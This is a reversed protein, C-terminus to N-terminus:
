SQYICANIKKPIRENTTKIWSIPCKNAALNNTSGLNISTWRLGNTNIVMAKTPNVTFVQSTNQVYNSSNDKVSVNVTWDGDGDFYWIDVTCNYRNTTTNINESSCSLNYRSSIEGSKNIYGSASTSNFDSAGDADTANFFATGTRIAWCSTMPALRYPKYWRM